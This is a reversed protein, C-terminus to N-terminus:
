PVYTFQTYRSEVLHTYIPNLDLAGGEMKRHPTGLSPLLLQIM